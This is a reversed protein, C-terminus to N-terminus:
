SISLGADVTVVQGTMSANTLVAMALDVLDRVTVERRLPTKGVIRQLKEVPFGDPPLVVGPAIGNVRVEPGLAVALNAVLSNMAAKAACHPVLKPWAKVAAVDSILLISGSNKRLEPEAAQALFFAARPGADFTAAWDQSTFDALPKEIWPSAAHLIADLRGFRQLVAAVLAEPSGDLALDAQFCEGSAGSAALLRVTEEADGRSTRYHVAVTYGARGLGLAFERGLRHGAGTALAVTM